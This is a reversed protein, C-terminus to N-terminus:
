EGLTDYKMFLVDFPLHPFEKHGNEEFGLKLYWDKLEVHNAIIGISIRDIKKIKAYGVIHQVLLAGIGRKRYSPLVSLRNLYGTGSRSKEFAVCGIIENEIECLFYEEGRQM